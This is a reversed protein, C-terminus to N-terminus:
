IEDNPNLIFLFRFLKQETQARTKVEARDEAADEAVDKARDEARNWITNAIAVVASSRFGKIYQRRKRKWLVRMAAEKNSEYCEEWLFSHFLKLFLRDRSSKLSRIRHDCSEVRIEYYQKASLYQDSVWRWLCLCQCESLGCWRHGAIILVNFELQNEANRSIMFKRVLWNFIIIVM